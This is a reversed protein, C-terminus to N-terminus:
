SRNHAILMYQLMYQTYLITSPLAYTSRHKEYNNNKSHSMLPELESEM